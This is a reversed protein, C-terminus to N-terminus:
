NLSIENFNCDCCLKLKDFQLEKHTKVFNMRENGNWVEFLTKDKLNGFIIEQKWDACCLIVDGNVMIYAQKILRDCPIKTMLFTSKLNYNEVNGARNEYKLIHVTVGIKNWYDRLKFLFNNSDPLKLIHIAVAPIKRKGRFRIFSEIRQKTKEFKLPKMFTEYEEKTSGNFSFIVEDVKSDLLQNSIKDTLLSGNTFIKILANPNKEKAYDIYKVLDKNLLPENLFFPLIEKVNHQSCENIIKKYLNWNMLKFKKKDETYSYPCFNCAANCKNSTQIQVIKPFSKIM